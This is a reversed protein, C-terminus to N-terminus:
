WMELVFDHDALGFGASDQWTYVRAGDTIPQVIIVAAASPGAGSPWVLSGIPTMNANTVVGTPLTVSTDGDANDNLTFDGVVFSDDRTLFAQVSPTGATFKIWVRVTPETRPLAKNLDVGWGHTLSRAQEEGPPFPVIRTSSPIGVIAYQVASEDSNSVRCKILYALGRYAKIFTNSTTFSATAGSPTGAPTITPASEDPDSIGAISWEVLSIGSTSTLALAVSTNYDTEHTAPNANGDVTFAASITM